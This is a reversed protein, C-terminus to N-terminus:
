SAHARFISPARVARGCGTLHMDSAYGLDRVTKRAARETRVPRGREWCDFSRSKQALGAEGLQAGFWLPTAAESQWRM